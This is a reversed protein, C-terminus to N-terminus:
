LLTLSDLITRIAVVWVMPGKLHGKMEKSKLKKILLIIVQNEIM